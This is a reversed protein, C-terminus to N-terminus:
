TARMIKLLSFSIRLVSGFFFHADSHSYLQVARVSTWGVGSVSVGGSGRVLVRMVCGWM